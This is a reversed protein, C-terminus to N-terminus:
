PLSSPTNVPMSNSLIQETVPGVPPSIMTFPFSGFRKKKM